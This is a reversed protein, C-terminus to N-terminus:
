QPRFCIHMTLIVTALSIGCLVLGTLLEKGIQRRLLKKYAAGSLVDQSDAEALKQPYAGAAFVETRIAIVAEEEPALPEDTLLAATHRLRSRDTFAIEAAFRSGRPEAAICKGRFRLWKGPPAAARSVTRLLLGAFVAITLGTIFYRWKGLSVLLLAAAPM